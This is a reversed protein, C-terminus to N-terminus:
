AFREEHWPAWDIGDANGDYDVFAESVGRYAGLLRYSEEVDQDSFRGEVTRKLTDKIKKSAISLGTWGPVCILAITVFMALGLARGLMQGPDAFLYCIAFSAAFILLGLGILSSLQPMFFYLAASSKSPWLFIAM